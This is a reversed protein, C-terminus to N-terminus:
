GFWTVRDVICHKTVYLLISAFKSSFSILEHYTHIYYLLNQYVKEVCTVKGGIWCFTIQVHPCFKIPPLLYVPRLTSQPCASTSPCCQSQIISWSPAWCTPLLYSSKRSTFCELCYYFFYALFSCTVPLM